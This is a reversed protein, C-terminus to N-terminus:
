INISFAPVGFTTYMKIIALMMVPLMLVIPVNHRVSYGRLSLVLYLYAICLKVIMWIELYGKSNSTYVM